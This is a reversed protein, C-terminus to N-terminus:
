PCTNRFSKQVVNSFYVFSGAANFFRGHGELGQKQKSGKRKRKAAEKNKIRKQERKRLTRCHYLESQGVQAKMDELYKRKGGEDEGWGQM